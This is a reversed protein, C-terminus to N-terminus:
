STLKPRRRPWDRGALRWAVLLIGMLGTASVLLLSWFAPEDCFSTHTGVLGAALIAVGAVGMALLRLGFVMKATVGHDFRQGAVAALLGPAILLIALWTRSDSEEGSGLALALLVLVWITSAALAAGRIVTSSKPKIWMAGEGYTGQRRGGLYLHSRSVNRAYRRASWDRPVARNEDDVGEYSSIRARRLQTGDPANVELHFTGGFGVSPLKFSIPKAQWAIGKSIAEWLKQRPQHNMGTRPRTWEQHAVKDAHELGELSDEKRRLRNAMAPRLARVGSVILLGPESYHEEYEIKILRRREAEDPVAAAVMYLRSMDYLLRSSLPDRFIALMWTEDSIGPATWVKDTDDWDWAWSEVPTAEKGATEKRIEVLIEESTVNQGAHANPEWPFVCLNLFHAEVAAPVRISGIDFGTKEARIKEALAGKPDSRLLHEVVMAQTAATLTAGSISSTKRKTLLPIAAGSEDRLDFNAFPAKKLLTLPVYHVKRPGQPGGEFAVGEGFVNRHLRFDVSIRRRAAADSILDIQEVRRRVWKDWQSTLSLNITGLRRISEDLHEGVEEARIEDM